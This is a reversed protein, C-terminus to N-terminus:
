TIRQISMLMKSQKQERQFSLFQVKKILAEAQPQASLFAEEDIAELLVKETQKQQYPELRYSPALCHFILTDGVNWNDIVQTFAPNMEQGILPNVSSLIRASGESSIHILNNLGANFFFVQEQFSDLIIASFAYTKAASDQQIMQNLYQAIKELSWKTQMDNSMQYILARLLGRFSAAFVISEIGNINADAFVILFSGNPLRIMDSYLGFQTALTNRTIGVEIQPWESSPPPSFTQSVKQFTEIVEKIQDSGPREKEIDGSTLYRSIENIFETINKYRESTSVALAKEIIRKLGRPLLSPQIVGYSLKGLVLEYSIVGLSYIDSSFSAKSADEKQEPSMYNPTGMVGQKKLPASSLDSGVQAIGFDIVKVGGEETILINEPKLDRHIIGHSHLHHLAYSVQLVIDLARRLSLSQQMIFQRLSIGRVWEMAIYLGKEWKGEGYLKVINPHNSLSIIHAEKLFREIAAENSAHSPPLIKIALLQKTDPHIGLFLYSMGGKNLLGEIKYPGIHSPTPPLHEESLQPITDQKYFVNQTM